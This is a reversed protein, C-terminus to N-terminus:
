LLSSVMHALARAPIGEEIFGALEERGIRDLLGQAAEVITITANMM